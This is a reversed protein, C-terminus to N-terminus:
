EFSIQIKKISPPLDLFIQRQEIHAKLSHSADTTVSYDGDPPLCTHTPLQLKGSDLNGELTFPHGLLENAKKLNGEQIYRRISGSSIDKDQTTLKPLYQVSFNQEKALSQMKEPTGERKRGLSAGEGLILTDFPYAQQVKKLFAQYTLGALELTFPICYVIDVNLEKLYQLKLKKSCILPAPPRNPLIHSPHNSFTLICVTGDPGAIKRMHRVITQHGRHVGDFSGVTLLRPPTSSPTPTLDEFVQM